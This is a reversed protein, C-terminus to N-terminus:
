KHTLSEDCLNTLSRVSPIGSGQQKLYYEYITLYSQELGILDNSSLPKPEDGYNRNVEGEFLCSRLTALFEIIEQSFDKAASQELSNRILYSLDTINKVQQVSPLGNYYNRGFTIVPKGLLGAEYGMAGTVTFIIAAKRILERSDIHYGILRVGPIKTLEQYYAPSNGDVNTPHIKVYLEHTVPLSRAITRVLGIQDSFYAGCVDISSEPQTHLGYLCFPGTGPDTYPPRVKYWLLNWRRRIYTEILNKPTVRSYDNGIDHFSKLITRLLIRSHSPARKLVEGFNRTSLKLAPRPLHSKFEEYFCNSWIYDQDTVPRFKILDLTEHSSSFGYLNKPIKARTPVIYPIGHRRCILMSILQLATDRGSSVLGIDNTLLFEQVLRNVQGLYQIAFDYSKHRLLRDMQIISNIRPGDVAQELESILERCLSQSFTALSSAQGIDLWNIKPVGAQRLPLIHERSPLVWYVDFGVKELSNAFPLFYDPTYGILALRKRM